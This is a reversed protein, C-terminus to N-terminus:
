RDAADTFDCNYVYMFKYVIVYIWYVIQICNILCNFKLQIFYIVFCNRQM